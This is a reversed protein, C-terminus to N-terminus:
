QSIVISDSYTTGIFGFQDRFQMNRAHRLVVRRLAGLKKPDDGAKKIRDRWGLFDFFAVVRREYTPDRNYDTLKEHDDTEALDTV